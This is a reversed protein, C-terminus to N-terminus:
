SFLFINPAGPCVRCAWRWRGQPVIYKHLHMHVYFLCFIAYVRHWLSFAWNLSLTLVVFIIGYFIIMTKWYDGGPLFYRLFVIEHVFVLINPEIIYLEYKKEKKSDFVKWLRLIQSFNYWLLFGRIEWEKVSKSLTMLM